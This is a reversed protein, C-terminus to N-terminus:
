GHVVKRCHHVADDDVGSAGCLECCENAWSVSESICHHEEKHLMKDQEDFEYEIDGNRVYWFPDDTGLFLVNPELLSEEFHM